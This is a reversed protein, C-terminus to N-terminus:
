LVDRPIEHKMKVRGKKPHLIRQCIRGAPFGGNMSIKLDSHRLLESHKKLIVM